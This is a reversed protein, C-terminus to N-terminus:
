VDDIAFPVLRELPQRDGRLYVFDGAGGSLVLQGRRRARAPSTENVVVDLRVVRAGRALAPLPVLARLAYGGPEAHWAAEVPVDGATHQSARSVRVRPADPDLALLWASVTGDPLAAYLQVGNANTDPHENDLPNQELAARPAADPQWVRLDVTLVGGTARLTLDARPAGAEAWTPESRRYHPEGLAARFPLQRPAATEHPAAPPALPAVDRAGALDISSRAAGAFLGVHWAAGDRRHEHRTGDALVARLADGDRAVSTVAGRRAWVLTIRGAEGRARVLHFRRTGRGPAGPAHARWLEADPPADVWVDARAGDAEALLHFPGSAVARAAREAEAVFAWGDEVATPGAPALPAATWRAESVAGDAHIPLDVSTGAPGTWALESVVYDDLVVLARRLEVGPAAGRVVADAWGAAAREEYAALVGHVRAQSRGDVLPANHALTSRYWHLSPDVYSGTGMDDLWAVAGDAVLVNLRDPHGHGGGSHGYDLAAYLRGADRRFVALGQGKLVVSDPPPAGGAPLAAVAALLSRWGLDARSLGSAPENREAEATSRWRGPDRRPVLPDYLAALAGALRPDATRAYGLEALEAFRWQRLSVAHQSDRRAPFTFDPLATLFPTAFGADFRRVLAPPLAIGAAECLRVGYWLGRHAFLHYNEGEYWSGDALLGDELHRVIGSAGFVARDVLADDGLLRGAALLAADNWVQRNSGGEDYGAILRASPEVLADRVRAGLSSAGVAAERLDLAVALQLLWISELYTSFFPRTPGLANDANPYRPYAQAYQDLLADALAGHAGAGAPRLLALLAAHVAREALWLQRWTTAWRDHLEGAHVAGCRPCAHHHPRHPDFDLVAGDRACRGGTRSLWAKTSPVTPPHAVLPRLEAALADALAGLEGAAALAVRAHLQAATLLLPM